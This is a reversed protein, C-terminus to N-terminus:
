RVRLKNNRVLDANAVQIGETVAKAAKGPDSVGTVTITNNQTISGQGLIKDAYDQTEEPLTKRGALVKNLNGEGLNYASVAKRLDGDFYKILHDLKRAAGDASSEFSTVDVGYEKATKPMFQFDGRAGAKSPGKNNGRDSEASWVKDLLGEPLAYKKELEALLAQKEALSKTSFSAGRKPGSRGAESFPVYDSATPPAFSLPNGAAKGLPAPPQTPSAGNTEGLPKGTYLPKTLFDWFSTAKRENGKPEVKSPNKLAEWADGLTKFQGLWKTMATLNENISKTFELFSPLLRISLMDVLVGVRASMEKLANSYAVAAEAAKDTDLGAESNMKKRLAAAEKMKDLGEEMLFLTDADIGFMQAYQTAVAFPMKKLQTVLDMLVDAKDRGEVKVGLSNLLGQLGPNSRMARAMGELSAKMHDASIGINSAGFGLAQMSNVTSDAKKASYYLKEMQVAFVGVMAQAATAVGLLSKGLGLATINLGGLALGFKKQAAGDIQFGLSVLYERLVTSDAAM